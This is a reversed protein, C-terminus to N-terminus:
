PSPLHSQAWLLLLVTKVDVIEGREVMALADALPVQLVEIDEGEDDRGGGDGPRSSADYEAVFCAVRETLSGPSTYLDFLRRPAQARFGTEEEVERRIAEEAGEDELLGAPTELLMGDPHGNLYAPLRLQRTLVVTGRRPDHLLVTAANGAEYVERQQERWTGDRGRQEFTVRRLPHWEDSLLESRLSRVPPEAAADPTSV